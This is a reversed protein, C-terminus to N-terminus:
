LTRTWYVLRHASPASRDRDQWDFHCVLDPRRLYGRRSWFADNGRHDDPKLPHRDPREVACFVCLRLGLARAHSERLEFFRVGIGRGRYEPLVVSEGFYLIDQLPLAAAEFPARMEAPAATMPLATTAGICRTGDWALVALSDACRSYTGLYHREYEVTGEYLYPWDRFVRLRLDALPALQAAIDMGQLAHFRLPANM